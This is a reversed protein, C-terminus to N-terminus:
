RWEVFDGGSKPHSGTEGDDPVIKGKQLFMDQVVSAAIPAKAEGDKTLAISEDVDTEDGIDKQWEM